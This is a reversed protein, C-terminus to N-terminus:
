QRFDDFQIVGGAAHNMIALRDGLPISDVYVKGPIREEGEPPIPAVEPQIVVMPLVVNVIGVVQLIDVEPEKAPPRGEAKQVQAEALGPLRTLQDLIGTAALKDVPLDRMKCKKGSPTIFDYGEAAAIWAEATEEYTATVQPSPPPSPNKAVDNTRFFNNAVAVAYEIDDMAQVEERTYREPM